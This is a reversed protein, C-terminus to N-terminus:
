EAKTETAAKAEEEAKKKAEVAAKKEERRQKRSKMVAKELAQKSDYVYAKILFTGRGFKGQIENVKINEEPKSFKESLKKRMDEFGPNKEASVISSVEHRHFLENRNDKIIEM